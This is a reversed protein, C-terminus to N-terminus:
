YKYLDPLKEGPTLPMFFKKLEENTLLDIAAPGVEGAARRKGPVLNQYLTRLQADSLSFTRACVLNHLLVKDSSPLNVYNQRPIKMKKLWLRIQREIAEMDGHKSMKM